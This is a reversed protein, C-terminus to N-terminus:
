VVRRYTALGFVFDEAVPQGKAKPDGLRYALKAILLVDGDEVPTQERSVPIPVGSLREVLQATQEYGIYARLTNAAHAAAVVRGFEDPTLQRYEYGGFDPMMASNMLRHM